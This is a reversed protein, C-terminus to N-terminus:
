KQARAWKVAEEVTEPSLKERKVVRSAERAIEELPRPTYLQKRFLEDILKKLGEPPFQALADVLQAKSVSITPTNM